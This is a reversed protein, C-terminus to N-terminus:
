PEVSAEYKSLVTTFSALHKQSARLLNQYVRKIDKNDDLALLGNQLDEIDAEEIQVGVQLADILSQSGEAIFQNYLALIGSDTFVGPGNGGVPDAINYRDLLAKIADMHRQESRAINSFIRIQYLGSLYTYVDRALKEEERMFILSDREADSLEAPVCQGASVFSVGPLALGAVMVLVLIGKMFLRKM